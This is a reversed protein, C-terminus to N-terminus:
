SKLEALLEHNVVQGPDRDGIIPDVDCNCRLHGFSASEASTYRQTSVLQCWDCAGGSLVRTWGVIRQERDGVSNAARAAWTVGSEGVAAARLHGADVAAALAAGNDLANAFAIFPQSIDISATAVVARPDFNLRTGLLAQLYAVQLSAAHEQAAILVPTAREIWPEDDTYGDLSGWIQSLKTGTTARIQDLLQRRRKLLAVDNVPM